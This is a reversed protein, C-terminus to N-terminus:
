DLEHMQSEKTNTKDLQKCVYHWSIGDWDIWWVAPAILYYYIIGLEYYGDHIITKIIEM